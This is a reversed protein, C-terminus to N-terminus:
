GMLPWQLDREAINSPPLPWCIHLSPDNFRVGRECGTTYYQDTLYMFETNDELAQYGHAVGGPVFLAVRRIADLRVAVTKRYTPSATRMDVLVDFVSGAICRVLKQEIAPPGQYHLGRVTGAMTTRALNSQVIEFEIGQNSFERKCYARAFSGRADTRPELDILFAGAIDTPTVIM